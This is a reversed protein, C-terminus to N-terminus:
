VTLSLCTTTTHMYMYWCFRYIPSSQLKFPKDPVNIQKDCMVCANSWMCAKRSINLLLMHGLEVGKHSILKWFILSRSKPGEIDFTLTMPSGMCPKWYNFLSMHRLVVEKCSIPNLTQTVNISTISTLHLWVLPTAM